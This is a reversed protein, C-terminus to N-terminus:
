RRIKKRDKKRCSFVLEFDEGGFFHNYIVPGNKYKWSENTTVISESGDSYTIHIQALFSPNGLSPSESGWSYRGETKQGNYAGNGLMSGVVNVGNKM